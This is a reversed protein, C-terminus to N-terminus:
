QFQTTVDESEVEQIDEEHVCFLALVVSGKPNYSGTIIKGSTM